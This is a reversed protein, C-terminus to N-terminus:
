LSTTVIIVAGVFILGLGMRQLLDEFIRVQEARHLGDNGAVNRALWKKFAATFLGILVAVLGCVTIRDV